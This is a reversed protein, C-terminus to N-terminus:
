IMSTSKMSIKKREKLLWLFAVHGRGDVNRAVGDVDEAVTTAVIVAADVETDDRYCGDAGSALSVSKCCWVLSFGDAWSYFLGSPWSTAQGLAWKCVAM